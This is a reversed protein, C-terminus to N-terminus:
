NNHGFRELLDDADLALLEDVDLEFLDRINTHDDDDICHGESGPLCDENSTIPPQEESTQAYATITSTTAGIGLIGAMAAVATVMIM